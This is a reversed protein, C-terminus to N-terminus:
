PSMGGEQDSDHGVASSSQHTQGTMEDALSADEGIVDAYKQEIENRRELVDDSIDANNKEFLTLLSHEVLDSLVDQPSQHTRVSLTQFQEYVTRDFDINDLVVRNGEVQIDVPISQREELYRRICDRIVDSRNSYEGSDVLQDIQDITKGSVRAAIREDQDSM